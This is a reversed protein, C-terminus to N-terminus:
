SQEEDSYDNYKLEKSECSAMPRSNPRQRKPRRETLPSSAPSSSSSSREDLDKHHPERSPSIARIGEKVWHKLRGDRGFMALFSGILEHSREHWNDIWQRSKDKIKDYKEEFQLKKEKMFSVNLEKATYGRELNRRVYLDYDKIIRAIVDTTSIGETRQTTLFMGRAKIMSYVDGTTAAGATYPIDDHAVFDIKHYSLFEDTLTWPADRVVEDVYRCHRVAEYREEQNNVTRGKEKHTLQDNCVGVILYTNPCAIKAQMLQRAHGSHFMDYIGDAYVRVRRPSRGAKADDLKIRIKYDCSDREIRAQDENSFPAPGSCSDMIQPTVVPVSKIAQPLDKKETERGRKKTESM